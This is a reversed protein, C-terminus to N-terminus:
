QVRRLLLRRLRGDPLHKWVARYAARGPAKLAWWILPGLVPALLAAWLSAKM